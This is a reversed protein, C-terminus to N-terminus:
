QLGYKRSAVNHPPVGIYTLIEIPLTTEYDDEYPAVEKVFEPKLEDFSKSHNNFRNTIAILKDFFTEFNGEAERVYLAILRAISETQKVGVTTEAKYNEKLKDVDFSSAKFSKIKESVIFNGELADYIVTVYNELEPDTFKVVSFVPVAEASMAKTFEQLDYGGFFTSENLFEGYKKIM